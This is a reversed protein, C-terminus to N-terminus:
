AFQTVLWDSIGRHLSLDRLLNSGLTDRDAAVEALDLKGRADDVSVMM